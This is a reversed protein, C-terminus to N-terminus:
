GLKRDSLALKEEMQILQTNITRLYQDNLEKKSIQEVLAQFGDLREKTTDELSITQQNVSAMFTELTKNIERQMKLMNAGDAQTVSQFYGYRSEFDKFLDGLEKKYLGIDSEATILKQNLEISTKQNKRLLGVIEDLFDEIRQNQEILLQIQESNNATMSM